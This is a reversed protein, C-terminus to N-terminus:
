LGTEAALNFTCTADYQLTGVTLSGLAACFVAM